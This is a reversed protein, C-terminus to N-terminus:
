QLPTGDANYEVINLACNGLNCIGSCEARSYSALTAEDQTGASLKDISPWFDGLTENLYGRRMHDVCRELKRGREPLVPEAQWIEVSSTQMDDASSGSSFEATGLYEFQPRQLKATTGQEPSQRRKGFM